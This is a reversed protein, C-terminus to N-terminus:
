VPYVAAPGPLVYCEVGPEQGRASRMQAVEQNKGLIQWLPLGLIPRFNVFHALIKIELLNALVVLPWLRCHLVSSHGGTSAAATLIVM